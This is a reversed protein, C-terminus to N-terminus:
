RIEVTADFFCVLDDTLQIELVPSQENKEKSAVPNIHMSGNMGFHVRPSFYVKSFNCRLKVKLYKVTPM